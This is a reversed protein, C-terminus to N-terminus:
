AARRATPRAAAADHHVKASRRADMERRIEAIHRLGRRRTTADIRFQVPVDPQHLLSLQRPAANDNV